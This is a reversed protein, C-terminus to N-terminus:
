DRIQGLMRGLVPFIVTHAPITVIIATEKEHNDRMIASIPTTLPVTRKDQENSEFSSISSSGNYLIGTIREIKDRSCSMNQGNWYSVSNLVGSPAFSFTADPYYYHERNRTEHTSSVEM